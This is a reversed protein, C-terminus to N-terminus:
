VGAVPTFFNTADTVVLGTTVTMRGASKAYLQIEELLAVVFICVVTTLCSTSPHPHALPM